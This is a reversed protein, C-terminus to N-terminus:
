KAAINYVMLADGHRILLKKEGIFPHAWHPGAGQTVKFQSIINFGEPEPKAIGVNGKENYCYLLGDAMIMTGKTDWAAVYVIEGTDWNMCIWKGRKNSQWNSGYLYGDHLIVGHHHNDFTQDIFKESVSTGLSDMELMVAHYDYGMTLFITNDKFVPTNTWILGPQDYWKDKIFYSYSWAIEGSKPNLALIHTGTMALIFRHGNWEYVTASAYARPGGLSKTQWVLEGTIKNFAVISTKNGGPSCIVLDDVLLPTESNGWLHYEAEFDKDVNVAWNEEGTDKDICALRGTGSQVYIRNGEVVPTSRTDPFSKNWSRGYSVQWKFSGDANIATLYDLTDIMGSTYIVGNEIIASSYGKGIGEVELILEPGEEAWSQLLETDSFIGDRNPGRWQTIQASLSVSILILLVTVKTKKM